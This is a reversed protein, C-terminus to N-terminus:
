CVTSRRISSTLRCKPGSLCCYKKLKLSLECCGHIISLALHQLIQIQQELHKICVCTAVHMCDFPVDQRRRHTFHDECTCSLSELALGRPRQTVINTNLLTMYTHPIAISSSSYVVRTGVRTGTTVNGSLHKAPESLKQFGPVLFIDKGWVCM